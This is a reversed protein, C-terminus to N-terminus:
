FSTVHIEIRRNLKRGEKTRNSQLPELEGRGKSSLRSPLIGEQMLAIKVARARRQSLLMNFEAKGISDTHGIIEVKYIPNKKMYNAFEIVKYYYEEVIEDSNIKFNLSLTRKVHCGNLDVKLGSQTNPCKDKDDYVGDNDSDLPSVKPTDSSNDEYNFIDDSDTTVTVNDLTDPHLDLKDIVVDNDLEKKEPVFYVYVSVMVRNSLDRGGTLTDSFAMDDGKRNEVVILSEEIGSDLLIQKVDDAYNKSLKDSTQTDLSSRFWNQITNAYSDSDVALENHDDTPENTHGIIKIIIKQEDDIYTKIKDIIHQTDDDLEDNDFSLMNFRVIEKFKGFMFPDLKEVATINSDKNLNYDYDYTGAFLLYSLSIIILLNKM